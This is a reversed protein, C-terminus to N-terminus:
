KRKDLYEKVAKNMTPNAKEDLSYYIKEAEGGWSYDGKEKEIKEIKFEGTQLGKRLHYYISRMTVKPFIARYIRYIDYGYGKGLYYLIEVVNQRITSKIPRGRVMFFFSLNDNIYNKNM